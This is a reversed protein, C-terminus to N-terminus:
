FEDYENHSYCEQITEVANESRRGKGHFIAQYAEEVRRWRNDRDMAFFRGSVTALEGAGIEKMKQELDAIFGAASDPPVDRGDTFAHVCVKELGKEKAAELLAYLHRSHSHVGGNSVLGLLHLASHNDLAHQIVQNLADIKEFEQEEIAKDIRTISQYVVRGAGINTHGVESNGMQGEPLGVALGSAQMTSHPYTNWYRDFNPKNAQVVANGYTEDRWGFGDLIIIAVPKKSM